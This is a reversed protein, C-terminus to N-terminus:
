RVALTMTERLQNCMTIFINSSLLLSGKEHRVRFIVKCGVPGDIIFDDRFHLRPFTVLTLISNGCGFAAAALTAPTVREALTTAGAQKPLDNGLLLKTRNECWLSMHKM